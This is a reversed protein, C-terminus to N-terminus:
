KQKSLRLSEYKEVFAEWSFDNFIKPMNEKFIIVEPSAENDQIDVLVKQWYAYVKSEFAMELYGKFNLDLSSVNEGALRYYIDITPKKDPIMFFGVEENMSPIDIARFFELDKDLYENVKLEDIIAIDKEFMSEMKLLNISGGIGKSSDKWWKIKRGNSKKKYEKIIEDDFRVENAKNVIEDSIPLNAWYDWQELTSEVEFLKNELENLKSKYFLGM